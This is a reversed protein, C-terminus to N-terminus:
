GQLLPLGMQKLDLWGTLTYGKMVSCRTVPLPWTVWRFVAAPIPGAVAPLSSWGPNIREILV